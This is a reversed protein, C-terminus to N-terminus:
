DDYRRGGGLIIQKMEGLIKLMEEQNKLLEDHDRQLDMANTNHQELKEKLDLLQKKLDVTEDYHRNTVETNKDISKNFNVWVKLLLPAYIFVIVCVGTAFALTFGTDLLKLFQEM